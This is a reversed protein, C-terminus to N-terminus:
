VATMSSHCDRFSQLSVNRPDADTYHQNSPIGNEIVKVKCRKGFVYAISSILTDDLWPCRQWKDPSRNRVPFVDERNM